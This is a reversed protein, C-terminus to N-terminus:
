SEKVQSVWNQLLQMGDPTLVSEPHFQVGWIPRKRDRFAMIQNFEDRMMVEIHPESESSETIILSHYRGVQMPNQIAKFIDRETHRLISTKGHRPEIATTVECGLLTGLAQHGLCVGLIPMSMEICCKLEDLLGQADEPANPGPGVVIADFENRQETSLPLKHQEIVVLELGLHLFYHVLNYTFSDYNDIFAIKM